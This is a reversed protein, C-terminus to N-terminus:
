ARSKSREASAPRVTGTQNDLARGFRNIPLVRAVKAPNGVVISPNSIRRVMREQV